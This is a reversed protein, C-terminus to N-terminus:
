DMTNRSAVRNRPAAQQTPRPFNRAVSLDQRSGRAEDPEHWQLFPQRQGSIMPSRRPFAIPRRHGAGKAGRSHSAILVPKDSEFPRGEDRTENRMMTDVVLSPSM